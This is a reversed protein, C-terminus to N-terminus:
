LPALRSTFLRTTVSALCQFSNQIQIIVLNKLKSLGFPPQSNQSNLTALDLFLKHDQVVRYCQPTDCLLEDTTMPPLVEAFSLVVSCKVIVYIDGTDSLVIRIEFWVHQDEVRTDYVTELHLVLLIQALM